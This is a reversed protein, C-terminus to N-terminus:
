APETTSASKTSPKMWEKMKNFLKSLPNWCMYIIIIGFIINICFSITLLVTSNRSIIASKTYNERPAEFRNTTTNFYTTNDATPFLLPKTTPDNNTSVTTELQSSTVNKLNPQHSTMANCVVHVVYSCNCPDHCDAPSYNDHTEDCIEECPFSEKTTFLHPFKEDYDGFCVMTSYLTIFILFPIKISWKGQRLM